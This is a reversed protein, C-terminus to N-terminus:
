YVITNNNPSWYTSAVFKYLWDWYTTTSGLGEIHDKSDTLLNLVLKNRSSFFLKHVIILQISLTISWRSISINNQAHNNTHYFVRYIVIYICFQAFPHTNYLHILASCTDYFIHTHVHKILAYQKISLCTFKNQTLTFLNFKIFAYHLAWTKSRWDWCTM